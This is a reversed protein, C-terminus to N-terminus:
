AFWTTTLCIVHEGNTKSARFQCSFDFIATVHGRSAALTMFPSRNHDRSNLSATATTLALLPWLDTNEVGDYTLVMVLRITTLHPSGTSMQM